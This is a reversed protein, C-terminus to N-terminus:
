NRPDRILGPAEGLGQRTIAVGDRCEYEVTYWKNGFDDTSRAIGMAVCIDIVLGALVDASETETGSWRGAEDRPQDPSYRVELLRRTRVLKAELRGADRRWKM